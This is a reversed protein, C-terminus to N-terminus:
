PANRDNRLAQVARRLAHVEYILVVLAGFFLWQAVAGRTVLASLVGICAIVVGLLLAARALTGSPADSSKAASARPSAETARAIGEAQCKACTTGDKPRLALPMVDGCKPCSWQIVNIPEGHDPEADLDVANDATGKAAAAVAFLSNLRLGGAKAEKLCAPCAEPPCRGAVIQFERECSPCTWPYTPPSSM